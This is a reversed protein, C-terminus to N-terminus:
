CSQRLFLVAWVLCLAFNPAFDIETPDIRGEVRRLTSFAIHLKFHRVIPIKGGGIGATQGIMRKWIIRNRDM